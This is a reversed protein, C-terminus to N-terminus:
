ESADNRGRLVQQMALELETPDSLAHTSYDLAVLRGDPLGGWDSAKHEFPHGEDDPPMYDLHPFGDITRFHDAEEECLPIARPMILGLGFPLSMLIPCLMARRADTTTRWLSAEYRNCRRGTGNRAIKIAWPGVCVAFRCSGERNIALARPATTM